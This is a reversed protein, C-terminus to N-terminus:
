LLTILFFTSWRKKTDSNIIGQHSHVFCKISIRQHTEFYPPLLFIYYCIVKGISFGEMLLDDNDNCRFVPPSRSQYSICFLSLKHKRRIHNSLIKFDNKWCLVAVNLFLKGILFNDASAFCISVSASKKYTSCCGFLLPYALIHIWSDYCVSKQTKWTMWGKCM